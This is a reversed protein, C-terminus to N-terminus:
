EIREFRWASFQRQSVAHEVGMNAGEGILIDFLDTTRVLYTFTTMRETILKSRDHFDFGLAPGLHGLRPKYPNARGIELGQPLAITQSRQGITIMFKVDSYTYSTAINEFRVFDALRGIIL